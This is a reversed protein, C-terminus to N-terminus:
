GARRRWRRRPSSRRARPRCRGCARPRLAAARLPAGRRRREDLDELVAVDVVVAGEVGHALGLLVADIKSVALGHAEAGFARAADADPRRSPRSRRPPRMHPLVRQEDVVLVVRLRAEREREAPQRQRQRRPGRRRRGRRRAARRRRDAGRASRRPLTCRPSPSRAPRRWAPSVQCERASSRAPSRTGARAACDESAVADALPVDVIADGHLAAM